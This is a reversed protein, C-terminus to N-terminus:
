HRFITLLVQDLFGNQREARRGNVKDRYAMKLQLPAKEMNSAMKGCEMMSEVMRGISNVKDKEKTMLLSVKMDKVM